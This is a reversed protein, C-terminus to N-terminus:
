GDVICDLFEGRFQEPNRELVPLLSAVTHNLADEEAKSQSEDSSWVPGLHIQWELPATHRILTPIVEASHKAALRAFGTSLSLRANKAPVTLNRATPLDIPVILMGGGKLWRAAEKLETNVCFVQPWELGSLRDKERRFPSRTATDEHILQAVPLDHARLWYRQIFIPGFHFTPLVVPRTQKALERLSELGDIRCRQKWKEGRYRDPWCAAMRDLRNLTRERSIQRANPVPFADSFQALREFRDVPPVMSERAMRNATSSLGGLVGALASLPLCRDLARLSQFAISGSLNM